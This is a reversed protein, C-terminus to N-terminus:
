CMFYTLVKPRLRLWIIPRRRAIVMKTSGQANAEVGGIEGFTRQSMRLREREKRLRCGIGSM